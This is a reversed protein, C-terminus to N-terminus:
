WRARGIARRRRMKIRRKQRRKWILFARAFAQATAETMYIVNPPHRARHQSLMEAIDYITLTRGEQGVASEWIDM